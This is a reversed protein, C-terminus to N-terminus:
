PEDCHTRSHIRRLTRRRETGDLTQTLLLCRTVMHADLFQDPLAPLRERAVAQTGDQGHHPDHPSEGCDHEQKAIAFAHALTHEGRKQSNPFLTMMTQCPWVLRCAPPCRAPLRM